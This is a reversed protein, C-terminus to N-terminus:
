RGGRQAKLHTALQDRLVEVEWEPLENEIERWGIGLHLRMLFLERAYERTM